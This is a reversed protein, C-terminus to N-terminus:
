WPSPGAEPGATGNTTGTVEPSKKAPGTNNTPSADGAGVLLPRAAGCSLGSRLPRDAPPM